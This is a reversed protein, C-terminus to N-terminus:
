YNDGQWDSIEVSQARNISTIYDRFLSEKRDLQYAFVKSLEERKMKNAVMDDGWKAYPLLAMAARLRMLEAHEPMQTDVSLPDDTGIYGPLYTLTYTASERPQPQIKVKYQANLVNERYFSMREPTEPLAFAQGYSGYYNFLTGYDQQSIDDFPVSIFPIWPNTTAKVVYLIKGFDPVNIDYSLQGPSYNLQFEKVAWPIGTNLTANVIDMEERICQGMMMHFSPSQPTPNDLLDRIRFINQIRSTGM